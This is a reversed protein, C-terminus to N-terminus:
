NRLEKIAQTYEAYNPAKGHWGAQNEMFSVGKGKTTKAVIASPKGKINKTKELADIVELINNGDITTVEFNFADLKKDIPMPSMVETIKGDIQLGNNDVIVVLNDLKYHSAFNLAEYVQGEEMEGDGLITYVRYNEGKLKASLAMGCACSIGQGLSGTSIDVGPTSRMSPHGQLHSDIDRLSTLDSEPFYGKEALVAYLAPACHGKSLVFRDRQSDKPNFPDINMIRFYLAVLLEVIGLSGGPHGSQANYISKIINVRVRKCLSNLQDVSYNLFKTEVL